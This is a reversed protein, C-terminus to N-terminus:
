NDDKFWDYRKPKVPTSPGVITIYGKEICEQTNPMTTEWADSPSKRRQKKNNTCRHKSSRDKHDQASKIGETEEL